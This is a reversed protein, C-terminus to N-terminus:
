QLNHAGVTYLVASRKSTLHTSRKSWSKQIELQEPETYCNCNHNCNFVTAHFLCIYVKQRHHTEFVGHHGCSSRSGYHECPSRCLYAKEANVFAYAPTLMHKNSETCLLHCLLRFRASTTKHWSIQLTPTASVGRFGVFRCLYLCCM